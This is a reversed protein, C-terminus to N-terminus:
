RLEICGVRGGANGSPQTHYDDAKAHIIIAHGLLNKKEDSCGVCWKDSTMVLRGTGKANTKINGLDGNHFEGVGWKGHAEGTPNWHGGASEAKPDSCDAVQHIHTAIMANPPLKYANLDLTVANGKQTLTVTGQTQTGSRPQINFTQTANRAVGNATCSLLLCAAGASLFLSKM